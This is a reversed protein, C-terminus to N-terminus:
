VFILMVFEFCYLMSNRLIGAVDGIEKREKM